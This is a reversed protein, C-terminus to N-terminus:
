KLNEVTIECFQKHNDGIRKVSCQMHSMIKLNEMIKM